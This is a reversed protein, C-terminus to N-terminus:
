HKIANKFEKPDKQNKYYKNHGANLKRVIKEDHYRYKNERNRYWQRYNNIRWKKQLLYQLERQQHLHSRVAVVQQECLLFVQVWRHALLRDFSALEIICFQNQPYEEKAKILQKRGCTFTDEKTESPLSEGSYMHLSM